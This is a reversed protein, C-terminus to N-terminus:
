TLQYVCTHLFRKSRKEDRCLLQQLSDFISDMANRSVLGENFAILLNDMAQYEGASVAITWHKVAREMNGSQAEITGINCRAAVNGAMSAAEYHLKAKKSGGGGYINALNYHAKSYGLDAARAYLEMAKVDDQQVGNLGTYYCHALVCIAAADNIM